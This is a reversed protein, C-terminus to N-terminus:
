RKGKAVPQQYQSQSNQKAKAVAVGKASAADKKKQDRQKSKPSKDGMMTERRGVEDRVVTAPCSAFLLLVDREADNGNRHRVRPTYQTM